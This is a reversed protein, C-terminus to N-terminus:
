EGMKMGKYLEIFKITSNSMNDLCFIIVDIKKDFEKYLRKTGWITSVDYCLVYNGKNM